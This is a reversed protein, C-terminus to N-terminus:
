AGAPARESDAHDDEDDLLSPMTVAEEGSAKAQRIRIARWAARLTRLADRSTKPPEAMIAGAFETLSAEFVSMLRAAVRGQEQRAEDTKTYRGSRASAEMSAKANSLELQRLRAVKINTEVTDDDVAGNLQARGAAGLHQVPDLRLKLQATAVAVNIRARHGVGVLADKGIKGAALWQSVCGPTVGVIAAFQKKTAIEDM